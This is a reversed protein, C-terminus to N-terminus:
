GARTSPRGAVSRGAAAAMCAGVFPYRELTHDGAAIIRDAPTHTDLVIM